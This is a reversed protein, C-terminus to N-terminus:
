TAETLTLLRNSVTESPLCEPCKQTFSYLVRICLEKQKQKDNKRLHWYLLLLIFQNTTAMLRLPLVKVMEKKEDGTKHAYNSIIEM